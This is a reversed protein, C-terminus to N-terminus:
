NKWRGRYLPRWGDEGEFRWNSQDDSLRIFMRRSGSYLEVYDTTRSVERFQFPGGVDRYVDSNLEIWNSNDKTSFWAGEYVWVNRPSADVAHAIAPCALVCLTFVISLTRM